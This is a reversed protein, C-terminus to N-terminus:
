ARGGVRKVTNPMTALVERLVGRGERSRMWDNYRRRDDFLGIFTDGTGSAGAPGVGPIAEPARRSPMQSQLSRLMAAEQRAAFGQSFVGTGSNMAELIDRNKATAAANVVFEGNSLRAVISDSKPGGEGSVFGGAAFGPGLGGVGVSHGFEHGLSGAGSGVSAGFFGGVIGILKQVAWLALMQAIMQTISGIVSSAFARFAEGASQSGTMLSQFLNTFSSYLTQRIQGAVTTGTQGLGRIQGDLDTLVNQNEATPNQAIAGSLAERQQQLTALQGQLAKLKRQQIEVDVGGNRQMTLQIEAQTAQVQAITQQLAAAKEQINLDALRIERQRNIAEVLQQERANRAEPSVKGEELQADLSKRIKEIEADAQANIRDRAAGFRDGSMEKINTLIEDYARAEERLANTLDRSGNIGIQNYQGRAVTLDNETKLLRNRADALDNSAKRVADDKKKGTVNQAAQYAAITEDYARKDNERQLELARIELAKSREALEQKKAYYTELSILRDAYASENAATEEEIKQKALNSASELLTKQFEYEQERAAKRDALQQLVPDAQSGGGGGKGGGVGAVGSGLPIKAGIFAGLAATAAGKRAATEGKDPGLSGGVGGEGSSASDILRRIERIVGYAPLLRGIWTDTADALRGMGDAMLNIYGGIARTLQEAKEWYYNAGRVIAAYIKVQESIAAIVVAIGKSLLDAVVRFVKLVNETEELWDRGGLGIAKMSLQINELLDSGIGQLVGFIGDVADRNDDLFVGVARAGDMIQKLAGGAIGVLLSGIRDLVSAIERYAPAIQVDTIAGKSDKKIVLFQKQIDGLINKLSSFTKISSEAAFFTFTEKVNSLLGAFTNAALEGALKYAKTKENLYNFLGDANGKFKAIDASTIQLANAVRANRDIKGELIARIEQPLEFDSQGLAKGAQGIQLTLTRIQDLSLGKALGPGIAQQFAAALGEFTATSALAEIRLKRLQDEAQPGAIRFATGVDKVSGSTILNGAVLSQIALKTTELQANFRIGEAMFDRYAGAAREISETLLNFAAAIGTVALGAALGAAAGLGIASGIGSGRGSPQQQREADRQAQASTRAWQRALQEQQRRQREEIRIAERAAREQNRQNERIAQVQSRIWARAAAERARQEAQAARVADNARRADAQSLQRNIQEALRQRQRDAQAQATAARQAARTQAAAAQEASRQAARAAQEQAAQAQRALRASEAARRAEARGIAAYAQEYVQRQRNAAAEAAAQAQRSARASADARQQEARSISQYAREYVRQFSAAARQAADIQRNLATVAAQGRVAANVQVQVDYKNAM